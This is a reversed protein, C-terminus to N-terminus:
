GRSAGGRRRKGPRSGSATGRSAKAKGGPGSTPSGTPKHRRLTLTLTVENGSPAWSELITYSGLVWNEMNESQEVMSKLLNEVEQKGRQWVSQM